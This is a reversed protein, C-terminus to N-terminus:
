IFFINNFLGSKLKYAQTTKIEVFHGNLDFYDHEKKYIEHYKRLCTPVLCNKQMKMKIEM